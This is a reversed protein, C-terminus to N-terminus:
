CTRAAQRAIDPQRRLALPTLPPGLRAEPPGLRHWPWRCHVALEPADDLQSKHHASLLCGLATEVDSCTARCSNLKNGQAASAHLSDRLASSTSAVSHGLAVAVDGSMWVWQGQSAPRSQRHGQPFLHSEILINVAGGGNQTCGVGVFAHSVGPPIRGLVLRFGIQVGTLCGTQCGTQFKHGVHSTQKEAM